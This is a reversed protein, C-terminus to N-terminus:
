FFLLLIFSKVIIKYIIFDKKTNKHVISYELSRGDEGCLVSIKITISVRTATDKGEKRREEEKKLRILYILEIYVYDSLIGYHDGKQLEVNRSM